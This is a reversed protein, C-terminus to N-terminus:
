RSQIRDSMHVSRRRWARRAHADVTVDVVNHAIMAVSTAANLQRYTIELSPVVPANPTDVTERRPAEPSRNSSEQAAFSSIFGISAQVDAILDVRSAGSPGAQSAAATSGAQAMLLLLYDSKM